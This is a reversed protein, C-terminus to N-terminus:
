RRDALLAFVAIVALIALAVLALAAAVFLLVPVFAVFVQSLAGIWSAQRLADSDLNRGVALYFVIVLIAVLAALLGPIVDFVILLGEVLAIVVGLQLRRERLWRGLNSTRHEIAPRRLEM